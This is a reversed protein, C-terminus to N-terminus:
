RVVDYPMYVCLLLRAVRLSPAIRQGCCLSSFDRSWTKVCIRLETLSPCLFGNNQFRQSAIDIISFFFFLLSCERGVSGKGSEIRNKTGINRPFNWIMDRKTTERTHNKRTQSSNQDPKQYCWPHGKKTFACSQPMHSSECVQRRHEDVTISLTFNEATQRDVQRNAASFPTHSSPPPRGHDVIGTAHSSIFHSLETHIRTSFSIYVLTTENEVNRVQAFCPFSLPFQITSERKFTLGPKWTSLTIQGRRPQLENVTYLTTKWCFMSSM